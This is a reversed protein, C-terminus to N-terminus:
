AAGVTFGEAVHVIHTVVACMSWLLWVLHQGVADFVLRRYCRM